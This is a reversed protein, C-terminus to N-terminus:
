PTACPHHIAGDTAHSDTGTSSDISGDRIYMGFVMTLWPKTSESWATGRLRAHSKAESGSYDRISVPGPSRPFVGRWYRIM